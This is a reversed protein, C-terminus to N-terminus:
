SWRWSDVIKTTFLLPLAVLTADFVIRKVVIIGRSMEALQAQPSLHDLFQHLAGAQLANVWNGLFLLLLIAGVSLSVAVFQNPAVASCLVGIALMGAGLSYIGLYSAAITHWDVETVQRLIFPYVISPVWLLLFSLVAAAYKGLVLQSIGIPASLLNEITGTARENAFSRMTLTPCLLLFALPVCVGQGYFVPLPGVDLGLDASAAFASVISVFSFGQVVLLTVLLVWALPTCWLSVLERKLTALFASM